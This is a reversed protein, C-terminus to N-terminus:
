HNGGRISQQSLSRGNSHQRSLLSRPERTPLQPPESVRSIQPTEFGDHVITTITIPKLSHLTPCAVKVGETSHCTEM